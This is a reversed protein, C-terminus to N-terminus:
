IKKETFKEVVAMLHHMEMGNAINRPLGLSDLLNLVHEIENGTDNKLQKEYHSLEGISPFKVTYDKGYVNLKLETRKFEM